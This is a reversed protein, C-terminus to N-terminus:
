ASVNSMTKPPVRGSILHAQPEEESNEEETIAEDTLGSNESSLKLRRGFQAMGLFKMAEIEAETM